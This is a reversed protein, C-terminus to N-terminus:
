SIMTDEPDGHFSKVIQNRCKFRRGCVTWKNRGPNIFVLALARSKGFEALSRAKLGAYEAIV